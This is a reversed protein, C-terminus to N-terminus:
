VQFFVIGYTDIKYTGTASPKQRFSFWQITGLRGSLCFIIM